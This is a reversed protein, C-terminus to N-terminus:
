RYFYAYQEKYSSRGLRESIAMGYPRSRFCTTCMDTYSISIFIVYNYCVIKLCMYTYTNSAIRFFFYMHLMRKSWIYTCYKIRESVCIHTVYTESVSAFYFLSIPFDTFMVLKSFVPKLMLVCALGLHSLVMHGSRGRDTHRQLYRKANPLFTSSPLLIWNLILTSLLHLTRDISPTVAYPWAESYWTDNPLPPEYQNNLDRYRGHINGLSSKQFVHLQFMHRFCMFTYSISTNRFCMSSFSKIGGCFQTDDNCICHCNRYNGCYTFYISVLQCHEM